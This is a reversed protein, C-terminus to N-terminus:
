PRTLAHLAVVLRNEPPPAAVLVIRSGDPSVDYLPIPNVSLRDIGLYSARFLPTRGRVTLPGGTAADDAGVSAAILQSGQPSQADLQWYYLTRGDRGWVPNVGGAASVLAKRGPTPYAQVYVEWRGTEDSMYAAWRGNPSVRLGAENAPTALYARAAGGDIPQLWLDNGSTDSQATFAVTKGDPSWDSPVETGPRRTLQRPSGGALTRVFLDAAVGARAGSYVLAQGDPSWQPDGDHTSDATIRETTGAALDTIWIDSVSEGPAFAGFAIRRGDPAFRPTWPASAPYTQVVRGVRDVLTLRGTLPTTPVGIQYVLSGASSIDFRLIDRAVEEEPGTPALRHVDFPRRYLRGDPQAYVLYGAAYHPAMGPGLAQVRGTRLDRVEMVPLVRAGIRARSVLLAHGGPLPRARIASHYPFGASDSPVVQAPVGGAPPVRYAGSANPAATTYYIMGDDGWAPPGFPTPGPVEVVLTAPGGALPVTRIAGAAYFGVWAGDPSFFPWAAGETDRLPRASLEDVRRAYLQIGKPGEAAYVVTRDDPSITATTPGLRASDPEIVFRV